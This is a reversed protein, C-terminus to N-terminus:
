QPGGTEVPLRKQPKVKKTKPKLSKESRNDVVPQPISNENTPQDGRVQGRWSELLGRIRRVEKKYWTEGQQPVHARPQPLSQYLDKSDGLDRTHEDLSDRFTSDLALIGAPDTIESLTTMRDGSVGVAIVRQNGVRLLVVSHRPSLATRGLVRMAGGGNINKGVPTYRKLLVLFGAGLAVVVLTWGALRLLVSLSSADKKKDSEAQTKRSSSVSPSSLLEGLTGRRSGSTQSPGDPTTKVSSPNEAEINLQTTKSSTSNSSPFQPGVRPLRSGQEQGQASVASWAIILNLALICIRLSTQKQKLIM